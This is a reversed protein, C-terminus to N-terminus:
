KVKESKEPIVIVKVKDGAKALPKDNGYDYLETANIYPYGGADEKVVREVAEEMMQEKQWEAGAIFADAIDQTEWDWGPHGATDVVRRIHKEAAEKLGEPLEPVYMLALEEVFEVYPASDEDRWKQMIAQAKYQIEQLTM